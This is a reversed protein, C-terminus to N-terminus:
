AIERLVVVPPTDVVRRCTLVGLLSAVVAGAAPGLLWVLPHPRFALEMLRTQVFWAVAEAGLAALAGAFLGLLAFEAILSGLVLRRGAGLARLIASEQFRANLGAQVSAVMVLGGAALLLVLVLEVALALQDTIGRLQALIADMELVSVTPWARVLENLVDKRGPELYFSTLWMSAQRELVPRPFMLFFNPRMTDWELTRISSLTVDIREAGIQMTLTDGIVLGLARAVGSEASVEAGGEGGWWRGAVIRNDEPLADSWTLNFERDLNLEEGDRVRPAAGNVAVIRGPVMPYMGAHSIGRAALFREIDAVQYPAINLLFHNPTRPPLERRWDDVLATRVLVMVLALMLSLAFVLTQLANLAAHRQLAALALRLWGQAQMGPLRARRLLWFSVSGVLAASLALAGLVILGLRWDGSYWYLLLALAALGSPYVARAPAHPARERRLVGLPSAGAMALLPPTALALLSLAGTGAGLWLARLGPAPVELAVLDGLLAFVASQLVWACLWGLAIGAATLLLLNTAYLGRIARAPLGLTKLIAVYDAHRATYRRAAMALAIGALVVGLSGGLLLFSEARALARSVRPQGDEVTVFRQGPALKPEIGARWGAIREADGAFLYLYQVRSGPQVVASAAIDATNMMLRPGMAVLSGAADPEKRLIAAVRLETAGLGIREGIAVGLAPLLRADVWVEGPAPGHPLEETSAEAAASAAIGVRGLLPYEASVAKVTVLQMADGHYVMTAFRLVRAERLGAARADQLWEGPVERPSQLVLDGAMFTASRLEVARQMREVVLALASVIGVALVLALLLVGLEGSRWDRWFLRLALRLV